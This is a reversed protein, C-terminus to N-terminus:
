YFAVSSDNTTTSRWFMCDHGECSGRQIWTVNTKVMVGMLKDPVHGAVGM